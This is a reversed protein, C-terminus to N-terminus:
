LPKVGQIEIGSEEHNAGLAIQPASAEIRLFHVFRQSKTGILANNQCGLFGPIGIGLGQAPHGVYVQVGLLAKDVQCIDKGNGGYGDGINVLLAPLHLEEEAPDLLMQSDFGKVSCRGVGDFGLDPDSDTNIQQNCDQLLSKMQGAVEVCNQLNQLDVNELFSGNNLYNFISILL